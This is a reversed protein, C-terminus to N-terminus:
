LTAAMTRIEEMLKKSYTVPDMPQMNVVQLKVREEQNYTDVRTRLTFIFPRFNPQTIIKEYADKNEMKMYEELKEPKMKLIMEAKEDWLVVWASAMRDGIEANVMYRYKYSTYTQQCKECKMEGTQTDVLKKGCGDVPCCKYVPNKGISLLIAKCKAYQASPQQGVSAKALELNLMSDLTKWQDGGGLEMTSTLNKFNPAEIMNAYWSKVKRVEPIDLNVFMADGASASKGGFNSLRASKTVFVDGEIGQFNEAEDGWITVGISCRSMDVITIDRKKLEKNKTRSTITSFEGVKLIAGILDVPQNLATNELMAISVFNFRAKPIDDAEKSDVVEELLSDNNLTIEHDATTYRKDANKVTARGLVYVKQLQVYDFVRDCDANFATVKIDGTKDTITFNFLKGGGKANNYERIQSKTTVRGKVVWKGIYPTLEAITIITHGYNGGRNSQPSNIFNNQMGGVYPQPQTSNNFSNYNNRSAQNMPQQPPQNMIQPQNFGSPQNFSPQQNFAPQQNVVQPERLQNTTPPLVRTLKSGVESGKKVIELNLIYILRKKTDTTGEAGPHDVVQYSTVKILSWKELRGNKIDSVLEQNTIVCYQHTKVGDGIMLRYRLDETSSGMSMQDPSMPKYGIIQLVPDSPRQGELIQNLAGASLLNEM